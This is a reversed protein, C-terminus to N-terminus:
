IISGNSKWKTKPVDKKIKDYHPSLLGGGWEGRPGLSVCNSGGQHRLHGKMHKFNDTQKYMRPEEEGTHHVTSSTQRVYYPHCPFPPSRTFWEKREALWAHCTTVEGHKPSNHLLAKIPVLNSSFTSAELYLCCPTSNVVSRNLSRIPPPVCVKQRLISRRWLSLKFSPHQITSYYLLYIACYYLSFVGACQLLCM